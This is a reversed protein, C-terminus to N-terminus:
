QFRRPDRPEGQSEPGPAANVVEATGQDRQKEKGDGNRPVRLHVVCVDMTTVANTLRVVLHKSLQRELDSVRSPRGYVGGVGPRTWCRESTRSPPLIEAPCLCPAIRATIARKRPIPLHRSIWWMFAIQLCKASQTRISM